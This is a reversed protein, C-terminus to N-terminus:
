NRRIVILFTFLIGLMFAAFVVGYGRFAILQLQKVRDEKLIDVLQWLTNDVDKKALIKEQEDVTLHQDRKLKLKIRAGFETVEILSDSDKKIIMIEHGPLQFSAIYKAVDVPEFSIFFVFVRGDSTHMEHMIDFHYNQSDSHIRLQADSQQSNVIFLRINERCGKGILSSEDKLLLYGEHDVITFAVADPFDAAILKNVSNYFDPNDPHDVLRKIENQNRDVFGGVNKRLSNLYQQILLDTGSLSHEALKTEHEISQAVNNSAVYYFLM